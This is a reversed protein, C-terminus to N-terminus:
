IVPYFISNKFKYKSLSKVNKLVDVKDKIYSHIAHWIFSNNNKVYLEVEIPKLM